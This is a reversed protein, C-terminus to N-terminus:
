HVANLCNSRRYEITSIMDILKAIEDAKLNIRFIGVFFEQKQFNGPKKHLLREQTFNKHTILNGSLLKFSVWFLPSISFKKLVIEQDKVHRSSLCFM